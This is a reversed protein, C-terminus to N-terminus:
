GADDEIEPTDDHAVRDLLAVATEVGIEVTGFRSANRVTFGLREALVKDDRHDVTLASRVKMAKMTTTM